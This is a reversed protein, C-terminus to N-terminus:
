RTKRPTMIPTLRQPMNRPAPAPLQLDPSRSIGGSALARLEDVIAKGVRFVAGAISSQHAVLDQDIQELWPVPDIALSVRNVTESTIYFRVGKALQRRYPVGPVLLVGKGSLVPAIQASTGVAVPGATELLLEIVVFNEASYILQSTATPETFISYVETRYTQLQKPVEGGKSDPLARQAEKNSQAMTNAVQQIFGSPMKPTM